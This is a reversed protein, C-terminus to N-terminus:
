VGWYGRDYMVGARGAVGVGPIGVTTGGLIAVGSFTGRLLLSRIADYNGFHLVRKMERMIRSPPFGIGFFLLAISGGGVVYVWNAGLELVFIAQRFDDLTLERYLPSRLIIGKSLFDVTSFSGGVTFSEPWGLTLGQALAHFRTVVSSPKHVIDLATYQGSWFFLSLDGGSTGEVAWDTTLFTEKLIKLIQEISRGKIPPKTGPPVQKPEDPLPDPHYLIEGVDIRHPDEIETYEDDIKRVFQDINDFNGYIAMSYKSLWDGPRVHISRDSNVTVEYGGGRYTRPREM